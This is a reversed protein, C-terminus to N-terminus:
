WSSISEQDIRETLRNWKQPHPVEVPLKVDVDFDLGSTAGEEM